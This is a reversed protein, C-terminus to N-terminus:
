YLAIGASTATSKGADRHKTLAAITDELLEHMEHGHVSSANASLLNIENQHHQVQFRVFEADWAPGAAMNTLRIMEQQMRLAEVDNPLPAPVVDEDDLAKKASNYHAAHDNALMMAYDHVSQATARGEALQAMRIEASDGSLLHAAMNSLTLTPYSGLSFEPLSVVEGNAAGSTTASSTTSNTTATTRDKTVRVGSGTTQASAPIGPVLLVTGSLLIIGRLRM